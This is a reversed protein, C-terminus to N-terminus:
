EMGMLSQWSGADKSGLLSKRYSTPMKIRKRLIQFSDKDLRALM